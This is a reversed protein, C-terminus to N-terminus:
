EGEPQYCDQDAMFGDYGDLEDEEFVMYCLIAILIPLVMGGIALWLGIWGVKKNQEEM